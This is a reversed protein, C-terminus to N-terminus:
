LNCIKELCVVKKTKADKQKKPVQALPRLQVVATVWLAATVTSSKLRRCWLLIGTKADEAHGSVLNAIDRTRVYRKFLHIFNERLPTALTASYVRREGGRLPM